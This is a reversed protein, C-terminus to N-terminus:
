IWEGEKIGIWVFKFRHKDVLMECLKKFLEEETDETIILQNIDKLLKIQLSKIVWEKTFDSLEKFKSLKKVEREDVNILGLSEVLKSIREEHKLYFNPSVLFYHYLPVTIEKLCFLNEQSEKDLGHYFDEHIIGVECTEKNLEKLLDSHTEFLILDKYYLKEHNLVYYFSLRDIM